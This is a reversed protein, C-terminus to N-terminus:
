KPLFEETYLASNPPIDAVGSATMAQKVVAFGAPDFHGNDLFMPMLEDYVKQATAEDLKTIPTTSAITEARHTKMYAITEFWGRLFRRVTDPKEAILSNTAYIVHTIFPNIYKGFTVLIKGQGSAELRYGTEINGSAGDVNKARLAAVQAELNGVPTPKIADDGSWGLRRSLEATLWYTLSGATSVGVLRGKLDDVTKVSGDARVLVALNIPAGAFAAVGREPAGKAIFQFDTGSGLAVDISNATMGQHLQAGPLTVTTLELDYKKFIGADIGVQLLAFDYDTSDAKGVRLTEASARGLGGDLALLLLSAAVAALMRLTRTQTTVSGGLHKQAKARNLWARKHRTRRM